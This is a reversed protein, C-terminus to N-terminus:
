ANPSQEDGESNPRSDNSNRHISINKIQSMQQDSEYVKPNWWVIASIYLLSSQTQIDELWAAMCAKSLYVVIIYIIFYCLLVGLYSSLFLAHSHWDLSLLLGKRLYWLTHFGNAEDLPTTCETKIYVQEEPAWAELAVQASMSLM